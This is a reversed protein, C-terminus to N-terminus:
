RSYHTGVDFSVCMTSQCTSGSQCNLQGVLQPWMQNCQGSTSGLVCCRVLELTNVPTFESSNSGNKRQVSPYRSALALATHHVVDVRGFLVLSDVNREVPSVDWRGGLVGGAVLKNGNTREDLCVLGMVRARATDCGRLDCHTTPSRGLIVRM